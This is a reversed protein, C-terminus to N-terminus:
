KDWLFDKVAAASADLGVGGSECQERAPTEGPVVDLVGGTLDKRRCRRRRWCVERCVESQSGLRM